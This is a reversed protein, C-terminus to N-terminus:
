VGRGRRLHLLMSQFVRWQRFMDGGNSYSRSLRYLLKENKVGVGERETYFVMCVVM